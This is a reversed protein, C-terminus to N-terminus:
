IIQREGAEVLCLGPLRDRGQGALPSVPAECGPVRKAREKPPPPENGERSPIPQHVVPSSGEEKLTVVPLDTDKAILTTNTLPDSRFLITGNRDRLIVIAKSVGVLEVSSVTAREKAPVPASLRDMKGVGAHAQSQGPHYSGILGSPALSALLVATGAMGILTAPIGIMRQRRAKKIRNLEGPCRPWIRSHEQENFCLVM